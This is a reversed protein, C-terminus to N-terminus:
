KTCSSGTTESDVAEQDVSGIFIHSSFTGSKRLRGPYEKGSNGKLSLNKKIRSRNLLLMTNRPPGQLASEVCDGAQACGWPKSPGDEHFPRLRPNNNRFKSCARQEATSEENERACLPCPPDSRRAKPTTQELCEAHFIHRCSLVGAVPMDGSRVISQSSWPSRQSLYRECLGCKFGGSLSHLQNSTNSEAPVSVDTINGDGTANSFGRGDRQSFSPDSEPFGNASTDVTERAPMEAPLSLPHIPKSM